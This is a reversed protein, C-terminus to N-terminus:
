LLSSCRSDPAFSFNDPTVTRVWAAYDNLTEPDGAKTRLSTLSAIGVEM